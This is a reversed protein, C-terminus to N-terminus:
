WYTNPTTLGSCCYFAQYGISTVTYSTSGDTVSDPIELAGTPHTYYYPNFNNQSTVQANGDVINYYLTQGTPAVASFDYAKVSQSMAMAVMLVSFFFVKHKM